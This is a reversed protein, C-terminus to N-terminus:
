QEQAPLYSRSDTRLRRLLKHSSSQAAHGGAHVRPRHLAPLLPCSGSRVSLRCPFHSQLLSRPLQSASYNSETSFYSKLYLFATTYSTPSIIHTFASSLPKTPPRTISASQHPLPETPQHAHVGNASLSSRPFSLSKEKVNLPGSVM